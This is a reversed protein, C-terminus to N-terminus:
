PGTGAYTCARLASENATYWTLVQERPLANLRELKVDGAPAADIGPALWQGFALAWDAGDMAVDSIGACSELGALNTAVSFELGSTGHTNFHIPLVQTPTLREGEASDIGAHSVAATLGGPLHGDLRDLVADVRTTVEALAPQQVDTGCVQLYRGHQCVLGQVREDVFPSALRTALTFALVPLLALAVAAIVAMRRAHGAVALYWAWLAFGLVSLVIAWWLIGVTAAATSISVELATPAPFLLYDANAGRGPALSSVVDSYYLPVILVWALGWALAWIPAHWRALMAGIVFGSVTFFALTLLAVVPMVVVFQGGTARALLVAAAAGSGVLFGLGLATVLVTLVRLGQVGSARLLIPWALPSNRNTFREGVWAALMATLPGLFVLSESPMGSLRAPSIYLWTSARWVALFAGVMVVVSPVAVVWWPLPWTGRTIERPM